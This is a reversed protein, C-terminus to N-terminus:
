ANDIERNPPKGSYGLALQEYFLDVNNSKMFYVCNRAVWDTLEWLVVMLPVSGEAEWQQGPPIQMLEIAKDFQIREKVPLRFRQDPLAQELRTFGFKIAGAYVEQALEVSAEFMVATGLPSRAIALQDLTAKLGHSDSKSRARLIAILDRKADDVGETAM